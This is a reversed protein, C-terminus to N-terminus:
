GTQGPYDVLEAREEGRVFHSVRAEEMHVDLGLKRMEDAVYEAAAQAQPSGAPRPGINETLHALQRWAYDSNLASDRLSRLQEILDKPLVPADAPKTRSQAPAEGSMATLLVLILSLKKM